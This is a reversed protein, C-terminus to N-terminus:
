QVQLKEQSIINEKSVHLKNQFTGAVTDVLNFSGCQRPALPLRRSCNPHRYTIKVNSKEITSYASHLNYNSIESTGLDCVTQCLCTDKYPLYYVYAYKYAV